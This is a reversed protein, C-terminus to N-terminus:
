ILLPFATIPLPKSGRKRYELFRHMIMWARNCVEDTVHPPVHGPRGHRPDASTATVLRIYQEDINLADRMMKWAKKDDRINGSIADMARGCSIPSVHPTTIAQILDNLSRALDPEGVVINYMEDFSNPNSLQYSKCHQAMPLNNPVLYSPMGRADLIYEFEVTLGQGTAFAVLNINARALDFARIVLL